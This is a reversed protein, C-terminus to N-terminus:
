PWPRSRAAINVGDGYVRADDVIVDGLNIGIPLAYFALGAGRREPM